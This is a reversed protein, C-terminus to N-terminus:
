AMCSPISDARAAAHVKSVDFVGCQAGIKHARLGQAGDLCEVKRGIAKLHVNARIFAPHFARRRDVGQIGTLSCMLAGAQRQVLIVKVPRAFGQLIHPGDLLFPVWGM